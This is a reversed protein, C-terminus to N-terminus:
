VYRQEIGNAELELHLAYGILVRLLQNLCELAPSRQVTRDRDRGRINFHFIHNLTSLNGGPDFPAAQARARYQCLRLNGVEEGCAEGVSLM